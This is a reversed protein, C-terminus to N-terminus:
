WEKCHFSSTAQLHCIRVWLSNGNLLHFALCVAVNAPSSGHHVIDASLHPSTNPNSSTCTLCKFGQIFKSLTFTFWIGEHHPKGPMMRTRLEGWGPHGKHLLGPHGFMLIMLFTFRSYSGCVRISDLKRWNELKNEIQRLVFALFNCPGKHDMLGFRGFSVNPFTPAKHILLTKGSTGSSDHFHILSAEKSFLKFYKSITDQCTKMGESALSEHAKCRQCIAPLLHITGLTLPMGLRCAVSSAKTTWRPTSNEEWASEKKKSTRILFPFFCEHIENYKQRLEKPYVNQQWWPNSLVYIVHRLSSQSELHGPSQCRRCRHLGFSHHKPHPRSFRSFVFSSTFPRFALHLVKLLADLSISRYLNQPTPVLLRPM